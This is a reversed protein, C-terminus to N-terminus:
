TVTYQTTGDLPWRGSTIACNVSRPPKETPETTCIGKKQTEKKM